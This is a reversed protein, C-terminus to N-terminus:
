HLQYRVPPYFHIVMTTGIFSTIPMFHRNSAARHYRREEFLLTNLGHMTGSLIRNIWSTAPELPAPAIAYPALPTQQSAKRLLEERAAAKQRPTVVTQSKVGLRIIEDLQKDSIGM